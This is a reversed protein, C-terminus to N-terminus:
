LRLFRDGGRDREFQNFLRDEIKRREAPDQPEMVTAMLARVESAFRDRPSLTLEM